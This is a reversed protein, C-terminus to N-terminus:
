YAREGSRSVDGIIRWVSPVHRSVILARSGHAGAYRAAEELAHRAHGPGDGEAQKGAHDGSRADVLILAFQNTAGAITRAAITIARTSGSAPRGRWRASRRM